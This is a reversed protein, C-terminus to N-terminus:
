RTILSQLKAEDKPSYMLHHYKHKMTMMMAYKEAEISSLRSNLFAYLNQCIVKDTEVFSRDWGSQPSWSSDPFLITQM